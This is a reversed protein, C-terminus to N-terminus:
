LIADSRSKSGNSFASPFLKLTPSPLKDSSDLNGTKPEQVIM